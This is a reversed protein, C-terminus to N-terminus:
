RSQKYLGLVFEEYTQKHEKQITENLWKWSSEPAKKRDLRGEQELMQQYIKSVAAVAEKPPSRRVSYYGVVKGKILDPTVNAFVWYYNKDATYNKVFGFFENGSKLTHWLGYFVGRPMSPHRIISHNQNLLDLESYNSIRMFTRNAYTIKGQTDTKSVIMEDRSFSVEKEQHAPM